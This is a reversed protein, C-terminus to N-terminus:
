ELRRAQARRSAGFSQTDEVSTVEYTWGQHVVHDGSAIAQAWPFVIQYLTAVSFQDGDTTQNKSASPSVKCPIPSEDTWSKTEGGHGDPVTIKHRITCSDPLWISVQRRILAMERASLM